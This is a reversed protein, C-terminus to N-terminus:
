DPRVTHALHLGSLELPVAIALGGNLSADPRGPHLIPFGLSPLTSVGLHQLCCQSEDQVLHGAHLLEPGSVWLCPPTPLWRPWRGHM